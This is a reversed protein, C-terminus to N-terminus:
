LLAFIARFLVWRGHILGTSLANSSLKYANKIKIGFRDFLLHWVNSEELLHAM